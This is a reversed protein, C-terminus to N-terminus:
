PREGCAAATAAAAGFHARLRGLAYRLRSKVTERQAGTLNAIEDLSLGGEEHLLLAERQVFPLGAIAARLERAAAGREAIAQPELTHAAPLQDALTTGTAGLEEDLSLTRDDRSRRVIDIVRNRAIQFLFTRFKASPQYRARANILNMWVDQFIEDAEGRNPCLRLIFRYLGSRHREYLLDFAAADGDRYRLMLHEDPPEAQGPGGPQAAAPRQGDEGEGEETARPSVAAAPDAGPLRETTDVARIM